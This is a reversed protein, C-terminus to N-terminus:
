STSDRAAGARVRERRDAPGAACAGSGARGHRRAHILASPSRPARVGRGRGGGKLGRRRAREVWPRKPATPSHVAVRAGGALRPPRPAPRAPAEFLVAWSRPAGARRTVGSIASRPRFARRGPRAGASPPGRGRCTRRPHFPHLVSAASIPKLCGRILLCLHTRSAYTHTCKRHM